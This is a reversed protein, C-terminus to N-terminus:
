RSSKGYFKAYCRIESTGNPIFKKDGARENFEDYTVTSLLSMGFSEAIKATIFNTCDISVAPHGKVRGREICSEFLRKAIGLGQHNPHVCVIHIHLCHSVGLRHCYDAKEEIYSLFKLIDACKASEIHKACELNREAENPLIKGSLLVGVLNDGDFALLSTQYGICDLLFEDDPTMKDSKDVHSSELPEKDHFHTALFGNIAKLHVEEAVEIEVESM